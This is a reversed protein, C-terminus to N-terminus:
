YFESNKNQNGSSLNLTSEEDVFGLRTSDRPTNSKQMYHREVKVSLNM